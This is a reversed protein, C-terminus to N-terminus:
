PLLLARYYRSQGHANEDLWSYPTSTLHVNAEASWNTLNPSSEIRYTRGVEGAIQL